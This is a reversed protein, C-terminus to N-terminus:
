IVVIWGHARTGDQLQRLQAFRSHRMQDLSEAVIIQIDPKACRLGQYFHLILPTCYSQEIQHAVHLV